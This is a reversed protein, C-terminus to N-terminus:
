IKASRLCLQPLCQHPRRLSSPSSPCSRPRGGSKRSLGTRPTRPTKNTIGLLRYLVTNSQDIQSFIASSVLYADKERASRRSRSSRERTLKSRGSELDIDHETSADDRGEDLSGVEIKEDVSGASLPEDGYESHADPNYHHAGYDDIFQATIVERLEDEPASRSRQFPNRRSSTALPVPGPNTQARTISSDM